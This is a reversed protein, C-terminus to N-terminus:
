RGETIQPFADLISPSFVDYYWIYMGIAKKWVPDLQEISTMSDASQVIRVEAEFAVGIATYRNGTDPGAFRAELAYDYTTNVIVVSVREPLRRRVVEFLVKRSGLPLGSPLIINPISTWDKSVLM